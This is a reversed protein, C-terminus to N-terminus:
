TVLIGIRRLPVGLTVRPRSIAAKWARRMEVTPTIDDFVVVAGEALHPRLLDFHRTTAAESHEADLMAWDIPAIRGLVEPLEEDIDGFRLEVRHELGLEAFGREGTRAAEHFDMTTLTGEGNLELAAAVYAGSIGMGTGLELCRRPRLDRVLRTLLRGWVPPTSVWRNVEWAVALRTAADEEPVPDADTAVMEFPVETRRAEVRAIWDREEATFRDLAGDRLARALPTARPHGSAAVRKAQIAILVRHAAMLVPSGPRLQPILRV